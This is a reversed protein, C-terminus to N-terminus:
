PLRYFSHVPFVSGCPLMEMGGDYGRHLLIAPEVDAAAAVFFLGGLASVHKLPKKRNLLCFLCFLLQAGGWLRAAATVNFATNM